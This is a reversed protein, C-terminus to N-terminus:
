GTTSARSSAATNLRSDTAGSTDKSAKASRLNYSHKYSVVAERAAPKPSSKTARMIINRPEIKWFTISPPHLPPLTSTQRNLIPQTKPKTQHIFHITPQRRHGQTILYKDLFRVGGVM